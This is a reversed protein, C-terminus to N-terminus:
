LTRKVSVTKVECDVGRVGCEASEVRVQVSWARCEVSELSEVGCGESLGWETGVGCDGTELRWDGSRVGRKGSWVRRWEASCVGREM